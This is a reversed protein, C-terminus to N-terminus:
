SIVHLKYLIRDIVKVLLHREQDELTPSMLLPLICDFLAGAGFWCARDSLQRLASKRQPPSGNKVKLILKLIKRKKGESTKEYADANEIDCDRIAILEEFYSVDEPKIHPLTPDSSIEYGSLSAEHLRESASLSAKQIHFESRQERLFPTPIASMLHMIKQRLASMKPEYGAPAEM